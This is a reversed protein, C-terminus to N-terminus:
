EQKNLKFKINESEIKIPTIRKLSENLQKKLTPELEVGEEASKFPNYQVQLIIDESNCSLWTRYSGNIFLEIKAKAPITIYDDDKINLDKPLYNTDRLPVNECEMTNTFFDLRSDISNDPKLIVLDKTSNNIVDFFLLIAGNKTTSTKEKNVKIYITGFTDENSIATSVASAKALNALLKEKELQTKKEKELVKEKKKLNQAEKSQKQDNKDASKKRDHKEEATSKKAKKTDKKKEEDQQNARKQQKKEKQALKEERKEQKQQQVGETMEVEQKEKRTSKEEVEKEAKEKKKERNETRKKKKTEAEQEKKRALKEKQQAKEKAVIKTDKNHNAKEEEKENKLTSTEKKKERGEIRKNDEEQITSKQVAAVTTEQVATKKTPNVQSDTQSVQAITTTGVNNTTNDAEASAIARQEWFKDPLDYRERKKRKKYKDKLKGKETYLEKAIIHITDIKGPSLKGYVDYGRHFIKSKVITYYSDKYHVKQAFIGSTIFLLFLTAVLKTSKM